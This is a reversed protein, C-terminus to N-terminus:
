ADPTERGTLNRYVFLAGTASIVVCLALVLEWSGFPQWQPQVVMEWWTYQAGVVYRKLGTYMTLGHALVLLIAVASVGTRWQKSPQLVASDDLAVGCLLIFCLLLALTYRGQWIYGLEAIVSAQVVAPVLLLALGFGALVIKARRAGLVLAATAIAGIAISWAILALGPPPTDVWGLLGIWGEGFDFTRLLMDVATPLAGAGAGAFPPPQIDPPNLNWVLTAGGVIAAAALGTWVLPKKLLTRLVATDSLFLAAVVILLVWLMAISRTAMLLSGSVVIATVRGALGWGTSNVRGLALCSALLAGSAAVELGNPNVSGGLYLVMPTISVATATLAWRSRPLLSLFLFTLALMVSCLLANVARMAYLAKVGSMILTPSGVLAYYLPSNAGASTGTDVIRNPDGTVPTICAASTDPEFALCSAAQHTNEVYAPVYALMATPLDPHATGSIQGGAVAAARVFHSPEDPVSGLPSAFSWLLMLPFLIGLALAFVRISRHAPRNPSATATM